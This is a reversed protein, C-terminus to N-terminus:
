DGHPIAVEANEVRDLYQTLAQAIVEAKLKRPKFGKVYENLRDDVDASMTHLHVPRTEM